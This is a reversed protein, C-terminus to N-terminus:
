EEHMTRQSVLLLLHPAARLEEANHTRCCIEKVAKSVRPWTLEHIVRSTSRIDMSNAEPKKEECFVDERSHTDSKRKHSLGSAKGSSERSYAPVQVNEQDISLYGLRQSYGYSSARESHMHSTYTRRQRTTPSASRDRSRVEKEPTRDRSNIDVAALANDENGRRRGRFEM